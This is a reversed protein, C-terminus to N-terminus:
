PLLLCFAGLLPSQIPRAPEKHCLLCQLLEESFDEVDLHVVSNRHLWVGDERHDPLGGHYRPGHWRVGPPHSPEDTWDRSGEEPDGQACHIKNNVVIHLRRWRIDINSELFRKELLRIGYLVM